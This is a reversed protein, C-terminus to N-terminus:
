SRSRLGGAPTTDVRLAVKPSMSVISVGSGVVTMKLIFATFAAIISCKAEGHFQM